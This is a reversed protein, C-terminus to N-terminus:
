RHHPRCRRQPQLCDLEVEGPAIRRFALGLTRAMPMALVARELRSHDPSTNM